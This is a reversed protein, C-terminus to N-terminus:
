ETAAPTASSNTGPEYTDSPVVTVGDTAGGTNTVADPNGANIMNFGIVGLLILIGFVMAGRIGWLSPRHRKEQKEVNTDPASM